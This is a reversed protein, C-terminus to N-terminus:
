NVRLTEPIVKMLHAGLRFIYFGFLKFDKPGLCCITWTYPKKLFFRETQLNNFHTCMSAHWWDSSSWGHGQLWDCKCSFM